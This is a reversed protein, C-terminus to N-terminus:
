NFFEIILVYIKRTFVVITRKYFLYKGVIYYTIIIISCHHESSVKKAGTIIHLKTFLDYKHIAAYELGNLAAAISAGAIM